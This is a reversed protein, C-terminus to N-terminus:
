SADHRMKRRFNLSAGLDLGVIRRGLAHWGHTPYEHGDLDCRIVSPLTDHEARLFAYLVGACDPCPAVAIRRVHLDKAWVECIAASRELDRLPERSWGQGGIWGAHELLFRTTSMPDMPNVQALSCFRRRHATESSWHNCTAAVKARDSLLAVAVPPRSGTSHSSGVTLPKGEHMEPWCQRIAWLASEIRLQTENM